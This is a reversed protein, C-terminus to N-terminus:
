KFRQIKIFHCYEKPKPTRIVVSNLGMRITEAVIRHVQHLNHGTCGCVEPLQRSVSELLDVDEKLHNVIYLENPM